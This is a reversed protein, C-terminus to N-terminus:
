PQPDGPLPALDIAKLTELEQRAEEVASKLRKVEAQCEAVQGAASGQDSDETKLSALLALLTRAVAGAGGDEPDLLSARELWERAASGDGVTQAPPLLAVAGRLWAAARQRDDVSPDEGIKRLAEQGEPLAETTEREGQASAVFPWHPSWTRVGACGLSCAILVTLVGGLWPRFAVAEVGPEAMAVVPLALGVATEIACSRMSGVNNLPAIPM